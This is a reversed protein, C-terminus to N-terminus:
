YNSFKKKKKPLIMGDQLALRKRKKNDQKKLQKNITRSAAKTPNNIKEQALNKRRDVRKRLMRSQVELRIKDFDQLGIQAKIKNATFNAVQKLEEIVHEGDVVERLLTTLMPSALRKVVRSDVVDILSNFFQFVRKRIIYSQPATAVESHVAYRLRRMIWMLSFDKKDNIIGEFPLNKLLKAIEFINEMLIDLLEEDMDSKLQVAMDFALSRFEKKSYLFCRPTTIEQDLLVKEIIETDLSKIMYNVIRLCKLRVWVHEYSLLEQSTYGIEDITSTLEPNELVNLNLEIVRIIANLTQILHHDESVQQVREDDENFGEDEDLKARKVRVFKGPTDDNEDERDEIIKQMKISQIFLPLITAIRKEFKEGEANMFRISLQAGMERHVRKEDKLLSSVIEFLQETPNNDLQKILLEIGEAIKEKCSPSDDNLLRTGFSLFFLGSFKRLM